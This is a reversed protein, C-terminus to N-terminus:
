VFKTCIHKRGCAKRHDSCTPINHSVVKADVEFYDKKIFGKLASKFPYINKNKDSLNQYNELKLRGDKCVHIRSFTAGLPRIRICM